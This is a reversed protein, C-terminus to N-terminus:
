SSYNLAKQIALNINPYIEAGVNRLAEIKEAQQAIGWAQCTVKLGASNLLGVANQCSKIGVFSDEFVHVEFETPLNIKELCDPFQYFQLSEQLARWEQRFWAAYIASLAQFPAPKILSDVEIQSDKVLHILRGLGIMPLASFGLLELAAEGEPFYLQSTDEIERAPLSPRATMMCIHLKKQYWEQLLKDRLDPNLLLQDYALLLNPSQIIAKSHFIKEFGKDGLIFNEFLGSLTTPSFDRTKGILEFLVEPMVLHPFLEQDATQILYQYISESPSKKPEVYQSINKIIPYYEIPGFSLGSLCSKIDSSNKAKLLTQNQRGIEELIILITLPVMDWENTIGQAEFWEPVGELVPQKYFGLQNLYTKVTSCYAQRYGKPQVLVGDIDFLLLKAKM